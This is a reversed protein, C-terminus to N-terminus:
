RSFQSGDQSLMGIPDPSDAQSGHNVMSEAFLRDPVAGGGGGGQADIQFVIEDDGHNARALTLVEAPIMGPEDASGDIGDRILLGGLLRPVVM